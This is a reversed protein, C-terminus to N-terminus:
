NPALILVGLVLQVHPGVQRSVKKNAQQLEEMATNQSQLRRSSEALDVTMNRMKDKTQAFLLLISELPIRLFFAFCHTCTCCVRMPLLVFYPFASSKCNYMLM